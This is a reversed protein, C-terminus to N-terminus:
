KLAFHQGYTICNRALTLKLSLLLAMDAVITRWKERNEDVRRISLHRSTAVARSNYNDTYKWYSYHTEKEKKKKKRANVKKKLWLILWFTHDNNNNNNGLLNSDEPRFFFFKLISRKGGSIMTIRWRNSANTIFHERTYYYYHHAFFFHCLLVHSDGEPCTSFRNEKILFIDKNGM